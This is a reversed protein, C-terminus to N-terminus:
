SIGGVLAASAGARAQWDSPEDPADLSLIQAGGSSSMTGARGARGSPGDRPLHARGPRRRLPHPVSTGAHDARADDDDDVHADVLEIGMEMNAFSDKGEWAEELKVAKLQQLIEAYEGSWRERAVTESSIEAGRARAHPHARAGDASSGRSSFGSGGGLLADSRAGHLQQQASQEDADADDPRLKHARLARIGTGCFVSQTGITLQSGNDEVSSSHVLPRPAAALPRRSPASVRGASRPREATGPRARSATGPRGVGSRASSARLSLSMPGAGSIHARHHSPTPPSSHAGGATESDPTRLPASGGRELANLGPARWSTRPRSHSGQSGGSLPRGGWSGAAATTPRSSLATAPRCMLSGAAGIGATLGEVQAYKVGDMVLQLERRMEALADTAGAEGAHEGREVPAAAGDGARGVDRAAHPAATADDSVRPAARDAPTVEREDLTCLQALRACVTARYTPIMAAPNHQLTLDTLEACGALFEIQGLDSVKNAELDLVTLQELAVMGSLDVIDNFALYLERLGHLAHLGDIDHLGCRALWLVHLNAWSTGLDRISAIQSGSLKLSSLQPVRTGLDGLVSNGDTTKVVLALSRVDDIQEVGALECIDADALNDNAIALLDDDLGDRFEDLGDFMDGHM